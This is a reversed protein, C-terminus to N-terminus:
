CITVAFVFYFVCFFYVGVHCLSFSTQCWLRKKSVTVFAIKRKEKKRKEKVLYLMFHLERNKRQAM